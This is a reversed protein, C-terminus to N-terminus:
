ANKGKKVQKCCHSIHEEKLKHYKYLSWVSIYGKVIKLQKSIINSQKSPLESISAYTYLSDNIARRLNSTIKSFSRNKNVRANESNGNLILVINSFRRIFWIFDKTKVNKM